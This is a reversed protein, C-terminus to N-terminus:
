GLDTLWAAVADLDKQTEPLWPHNFHGHLVGPTCTQKVTVGAAELQAAYRQGSARLRDHEANIIFTSPLGEAPALGACAEAPAETWPGGLYNEILPQLVEPRFGPAAPLFRTAAETEEDLEPLEPHVAPYLLLTGDPLPEGADRLRVPLAAALASGASAGGVAVAAAQGGYTTLAWRYAAELDDLPAPFHVGNLCLRYDVSVVTVDIRAVLERALADAEPMDLDGGIWGGGHCYVLLPGSSEGRRYVRVRVTGDVLLDEVECQPLVYDVPQPLDRAMRAALEPDGIESTLEGSAVKGMLALVAEFWRDSM